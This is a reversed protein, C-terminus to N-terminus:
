GATDPPVFPLRIFQNSAPLPAFALVTEATPRMGEPFPVAAPLATSFLLQLMLGPLGHDENPNRQQVDAFRHHLQTERDDRLATVMVIGDSVQIASVDYLSGNLRFEQQNIRVENWQKETFRFTDLQAKQQLLLRQMDARILSSAFYFAILQGGASYLLVAVVVLLPLGRSVEYFYDHQM